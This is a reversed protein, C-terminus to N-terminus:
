SLEGEEVTENAKAILDGLEEYNDFFAGLRVRLSAEVTEVWALIEERSPLTRAETEVGYQLDLHTCSMFFKRADRWPKLAPNLPDISGLVAVSDRDRVNRTGEERIAVFKGVADVLDRPVAVVEVQEPDNPAGVAPQDIPKGRFAEYAAVLDNRAKDEEERKSAPFGAVDKLADPLRNMLERFCHGVLALRAKEDSQEAPENMLLIARRYLDALTPSPLEEILGHLAVRDQNWFDPSRDAVM